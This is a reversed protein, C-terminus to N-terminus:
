DIPPPEGPMAIPPEGRLRLAIDLVIANNRTVMFHSIMSEVFGFTDIWLVPHGPPAARTAGVWWDHLLSYCTLEPADPRGLHSDLNRLFPCGRRMDRAAPDPRFYDALIAGRHPSSLTFMRVIRFPATKGLLNAALGRAVVGGMSLAVIDYEAIGKKGLYESIAKFSVEMASEMRSAFPFSISLFDDPRNSTLPLLKRRLGNITIRPSHYGSLVIVPRPLAVPSAALRVRESTILEHSPHFHPNIFYRPVLHTLTCDSTAGHRKRLRLRTNRDEKSFVM